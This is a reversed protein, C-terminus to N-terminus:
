GQKAKPAISAQGTPLDRSTLETLLRAVERRLNRESRVNRARSGSENFRIVRLAERKEAIEKKLSEISQTKIDAM